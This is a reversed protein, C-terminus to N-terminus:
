PHTTTTTDVFPMLDTTGQQARSARSRLLRNLAAEIGARAVVILLWLIAIPSAFLAVWIFL